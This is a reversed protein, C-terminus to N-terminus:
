YKSSRNMQIPLLWARIDSLEQNERTLESILSLAPNVLDCLNALEVENPIYIERERLLPKQLHKLGTGLFYKVELEPTIAKLLLFLYDALHGEATICWSDTSYAAKGVYFKVDANGGTNLICNRGDVMPSEWKYISAGSTFFPVGTEIVKAEKVQIPSKPNEILFDGLKGNPIKGFFMYMYKQLALSMLSSIIKENLSIKKDLVVLPAVIEKQTELPINEVQISHLIPKTLFKTQSGQSTTKLRLLNLELSYMIFDLDFNPKATIVYTRQYADFKGSYRNIHFNGQANNGALLIAETDFAFTNVSSPNEACTFFPYTGGEVAANADLRGTTINSAVDLSM